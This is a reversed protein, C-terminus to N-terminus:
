KAKARAAPKKPEEPPTFSAKIVSTANICNKHEDLTLKALSAAQALIALAQEKNM